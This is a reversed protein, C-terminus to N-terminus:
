ASGPIKVMFAAVLFATQVTVFLYDAILPRLPQPHVCASQEYGEEAKRFVAAIFLLTRKSLSGSGREFFRRLEAYTSHFLKLVSLIMFSISADDSGTEEKRKWFRGIAHLASILELEEFGTLFGSMVWLELVFAAYYVGRWVGQRMFMLPGARFLIEGSGRFANFLIVFLLLPILSLLRKWRLVKPDVTFFVASLALFLAQFFLTLPTRELLVAAIFIPM